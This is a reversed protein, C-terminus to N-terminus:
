YLVDVVDSTLDLITADNMFNSLMRHQEDPANFGLVEIKTVISINPVADIISDMFDMGSTPLNKGLYDIVAHHRNFVAATGNM